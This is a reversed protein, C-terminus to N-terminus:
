ELVSKVAFTPYGKREGYEIEWAMNGADAAEKIDLVLDGYQTFNKFDIDLGTDLSRLFENSLHIGFGKHITQNYFLFSGKYQGADIKFWISVMPNGNSSLKIEAKEIVVEYTGKPVEPFDGGGKEKSAEVEEVLGKVDFMKDLDAFIDNSM